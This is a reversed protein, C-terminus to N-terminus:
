VEGEEMRREMGGGKYGGYGDAAADAEYGTGVRRPDVDWRQWGRYVRYDYGEHKRLPVHNHRPDWISAYMMRYAFVAMLAGIIAGSLIDYWHHTHDLLRSLSILTAFLLPLIVLILKWFSPSRNSFLKVKANLYFFLFLLSAWAANSHGSPFSEMADNIRHTDPNTCVSRDVYLGKFGQGMAAVKSMDPQCVDLFHPRFGGILWKNVVQFFSSAVLAYLTGLVAAHFDEVSRVWFQAVAFAIFSFIFSLVASMWLPVIETQLPYGIGIWAVNGDPQTVPFLRDPKAPPLIYLVISIVGIIALAVYDIWHTRFYGGFGKSMWPTRPRRGGLGRSADPRTTQHAPAVHNSPEVTDLTYASPTNQPPPYRSAM